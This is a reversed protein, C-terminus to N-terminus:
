GLLSKPSAIAPSYQESFMSEEDLENFKNEQQRQIM